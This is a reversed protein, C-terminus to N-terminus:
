ASWLIFPFTGVNNYLCLIYNERSERRARVLADMVTEQRPDPLQSDLSDSVSELNSSTGM